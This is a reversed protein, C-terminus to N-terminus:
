YYIRDGRDTNETATLVYQHIRELGDADITIIESRLRNCEPMVVTEWHKSLPPLPSDTEDSENPQDSRSEADGTEDEWDPDPPPELSRRTKRPPQKGQLSPSEKSGRKGGPQYASQTHCLHFM